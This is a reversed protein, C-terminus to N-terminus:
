TPFPFLDCLLRFQVARMPDAAQQRTVWAAVYADSTWDHHDRQQM